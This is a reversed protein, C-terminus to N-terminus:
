SIECPYLTSVLVDHIATQLQFRWHTLVPVLPKFSDLKGIFQTFSIAVSHRAHSSM